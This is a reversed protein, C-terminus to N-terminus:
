TGPNSRGTCGATLQPGTQVCKRSLSKTKTLIEHASLNRAKDQVLPTPFRWSIPGPRNRPTTHRMQLSGIPSLKQYVQRRVTNEGPPEPRSSGVFDAKIFLANLPIERGWVSAHVARWTRRGTEHSISNPPCLRAGDHSLPPLTRHSQKPIADKKM